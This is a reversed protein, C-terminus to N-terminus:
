QAVVRPGSWGPQTTLGIWGGPRANTRLGAMASGVSAGRWHGSRPGAGGRGLRFFDLVQSASTSVFCGNMMRGSPDGTRRTLGAPHSANRSARYSRM